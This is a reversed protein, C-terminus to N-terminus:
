QVGKMLRLLRVMERQQELMASAWWVAMLVVFVMTWDRWTLATSMRTWAREAHSLLSMDEQKDDTTQGAELGHDDGLAPAGSAHSVTDLFRKRM